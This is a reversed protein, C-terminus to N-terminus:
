HWFQSDTYFKSRFETILKQKEIEYNKDTAAKLEEDEERGFRTALINYLKPYETYHLYNFYTSFGVLDFWIMERNTLNFKMKRAFIRGAIALGIGVFISKYLLQHIKVDYQVYTLFENDTLRDKTSDISLLRKIRKSYNKQNTGTILATNDLIQGPLDATKGSEKGKGLFDFFNM